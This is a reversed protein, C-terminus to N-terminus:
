AGADNSIFEERRWGPPLKGQLTLTITLFARKFRMGFTPLTEPKMFAGRFFDPCLMIETYDTNGRRKLRMETFASDGDRSNDGCTKWESPSQESPCGIVIAKGPAYGELAYTDPLRVKQANNYFENPWRYRLTRTSRPGAPKRICTRLEVNLRHMYTLLTGLAFLAQVGISAEAGRRSLVYRAAGLMANMSALATDIFPIHEARACSFPGGVLTVITYTPRPPGFPPARATIGTTTNDNPTTINSTSLRPASMTPDVLSTTGDPQVTEPENIYSIKNSAVSLSGHEPGQWPSSSTLPAAHSSGVFLLIFLAATLSLNM